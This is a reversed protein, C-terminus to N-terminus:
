DTGADAPTAKKPGIFVRIFSLVEGPETKQNGTYTVDGVTVPFPVQECSPSDVTVKVNLGPDVDSVAASFPEDKAASTSSQSPRGGSFYTIKSAGKPEISITSGQESDCPPLPTVKVVLLGKTPDLPPLFASLLQATSRALLSTEGRPLADKTLIWEQENLKYYEEAAVSMSYPTGRPVVIEYAGNPGSVATRGGVTVTANPVPQKDLAGVITGTQKAENAGVPGSDGGASDAGADAGPENGAPDDSSCAAVAAAAACSCALAFAFPLARMILLLTGRTGSPM